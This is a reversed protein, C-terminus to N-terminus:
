YKLMKNLESILKLPIFFMLEEKSACKHASCSQAVEVWFHTLHLCSFTQDLEQDDQHIFNIQM